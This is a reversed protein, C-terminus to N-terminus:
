EFPRPSPKGIIHSFMSRDQFILSYLTNQNNKLIPRYEAMDISLDRCSSTMSIASRLDIKFFRWFVYYVRKLKVGLVLIADGM